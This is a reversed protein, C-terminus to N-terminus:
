TDHHSASETLLIEQYVKPSFVQNSANERTNKEQYSTKKTNPTVLQDAQFTQFKIVDAGIDSATKILEIAMQFDGNHNVGAEAIILTSKM